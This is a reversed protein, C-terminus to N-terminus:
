SHRSKGEWCHAVPFEFDRAWTYTHTTHSRVSNTSHKMRLSGCVRGRAKTRARLGLLAHCAAPTPTTVYTQIQSLFLLVKAFPGWLYMFGSFGCCINASHRSHEQLQASHQCYLLTCSPIWGQGGLLAQSILGPLLGSPYPPSLLHFSYSNTPALNQHASLLRTYVAELSRTPPTPPAACLTPLAPCLGTSTQTPHPPPLEPLLLHLAGAVRFCSGGM